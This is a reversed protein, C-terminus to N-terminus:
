RAARPHNQWCMSHEEVAHQIIDAIPKSRAHLGITHREIGIVLNLALVFVDFSSKKSYDTAVATARLANLGADQQAARKL